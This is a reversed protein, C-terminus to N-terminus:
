MICGLQGRKASPTRHRTFPFGLSIVSGTTGGICFTCHSDSIVAEVIDGSYQPPIWLLWCGNLLLWGDQISPLLIGAGNKLALHALTLQKHHQDPLSTTDDRTTIALQTYNTLEVGTHADWLRMTKDDSCSALSSGDPSFVISKVWETHGVM